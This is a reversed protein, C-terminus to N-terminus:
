DIVPIVLAIHDETGVNRTIHGKGTTDDMLLISGPGFRKTEGDSVVVESMGQVIVLYQRRPAPHWDEVAGHKLRLLNANGNINFTYTSLADTGRERFAKTFALSEERIHTTGENDTYIRTYTLPEAATESGPADTM